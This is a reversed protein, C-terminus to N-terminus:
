KSPIDPEAAVKEWGGLVCGGYTIRSHPEITEVTDGSCQRDNYSRTILARDPAYAPCAAGTNRWWGNSTKVYYGLEPSLRKARIDRNAMCQKTTAPEAALAAGSLSALALLPLLIRM